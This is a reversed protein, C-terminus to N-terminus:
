FLWALTTVGTAVALLSEVGDEDPHLRPWAEGIDRMYASAAEEVMTRAERRELSQNLAETLRQLAGTVRQYVTPDALAQECADTYEQYADSINGTEDYWLARELDEVLRQYAGVFADAPASLGTEFGGDLM